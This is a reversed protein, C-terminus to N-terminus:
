ASTGCCYAPRAMVVTGNYVDERTASRSEGQKICHGDVSHGGVGDVETNAYAGSSGRYAVVLREFNAQFEQAHDVQTRGRIEMIDDGNLMNQLSMHSTLVYADFVVVIM